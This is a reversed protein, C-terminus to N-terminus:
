EVREAFALKGSIRTIKVKLTTGAETKPVILTYGELPAKGEGRSGTQKITVEIVAGERVEVADRAKQHAKRAKVPTHAGCAECKLIQVRDTRELHTDPSGCETCQVYTAVYDRLREMVLSDSLRGTFILRDGDIQGATGIQQMLYKAVHDEDRRLENLIDRFNRLITMRGEPVLDVPPLTWRDRHGVNEPLQGRAKELLELYDDM